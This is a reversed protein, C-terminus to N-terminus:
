RKKVLGDIFQGFLEPHDQDISAPAPGSYPTAIQALEKPLEAAMGSFGPNVLVNTRDLRDRVLDRLTKINTRESSPWHEMLTGRRVVCNQFPRLDVHVRGDAEWWVSRMDLRAGSWDNLKEPPDILVGVSVSPIDPWAVDPSALPASVIWLTSAAKDWVCRKWTIRKLWAMEEGQVGLFLAKGQLGRRRRPAGLVFRSSLLDSLKLSSGDWSWAQLTSWQDMWLWLLALGKQHQWYAHTKDAHDM